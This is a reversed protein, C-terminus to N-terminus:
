AGESEALAARANKCRTCHCARGADCYHEALYDRVAERLRANDALLVAIHEPISRGDYATVSLAAWSRACCCDACHNPEALTGRVPRVAHVTATATVQDCAPRKADFRAADAMESENSIDHEEDLIWVKDNKM